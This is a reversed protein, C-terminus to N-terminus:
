LVQSRIRTKVLNKKCFVSQKQGIQKLMQTHDIEYASDYSFYFAFDQSLFREPDEAKLSHNLMRVVEDVLEGLEGKSQWVEMFKERWLAEGESFKEIKSSSFDRLFDNMVIYKLELAKGM